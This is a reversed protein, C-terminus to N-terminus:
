EIQFVDQRAPHMSQSRNQNKEETKGRIKRLYAIKKEDDIVQIVPPSGRRGGEPGWWSYRRNPWAAHEEGVGM